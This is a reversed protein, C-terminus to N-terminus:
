EEEEEEPPRFVAGGECYYDRIYRTKRPDCVWGRSLEDSATFPSVNLGEIDAVVCNIKADNNIDVDRLKAYKNMDAVFDNNEYQGPFYPYFLAASDFRGWVSDVHYAGTYQENTSTMLARWRSAMLKNGGSWRDVRVGVLNLTIEANWGANDWAALLNTWTNDPNTLESTKKRNAYYAQIPTEVTFRMLNIMQYQEYLWAASLFEDANFTSIDIASKLASESWIPFTTVGTWDGDTALTQDAFALNSSSPTFWNTKYTKAYVSLGLIFSRKIPANEVIQLNSPRETVSAQQWRLREYYAQAVAEYYVWHLKNQIAEVSSWDLTPCTPHDCSTWSTFTISM